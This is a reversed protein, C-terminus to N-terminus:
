RIGRPMSRARGRPAARYAARAAAQDALDRQLLFNLPEALSADALREAARAVESSAYRVPNPARRLTAIWGDIITRLPIRHAPKSKRSRIEVRAAM